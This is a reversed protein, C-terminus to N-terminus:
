KRGFFERISAGLGDILFIPKVVADAGRRIYGAAKHVYEQALGTYTPTVRLLKAMLYVLGGLLALVIVLAFIIPIVIWITSVAAWRAVDGNNRFAAINIVVILGVCLLATLIIPLLIQWFLQRRHNRYSDHLPQPFKANM